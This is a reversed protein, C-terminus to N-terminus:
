HNNLWASVKSKALRIIDATPYPSSAGGNVFIFYLGEPTQYLTEEYGNPDGYHGYTAKKIVTATETNYEKNCIIKKM